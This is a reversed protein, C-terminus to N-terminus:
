RDMRLLKGVVIVSEYDSTEECVPKKFEEKM